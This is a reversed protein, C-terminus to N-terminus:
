CLRFHILVSVQTSVTRDTDDRTLTQSHFKLVFGLSLVYKKLIFGLKM